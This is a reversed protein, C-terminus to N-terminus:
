AQSLERGMVNLFFIVGQNMQVVKFHWADLVCSLKLFLSRQQMWEV